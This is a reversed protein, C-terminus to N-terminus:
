ALAEAVEEVITPRTTDADILTFGEAPDIADVHARQWDLVVPGAESADAGERLRAEIRTQLVDEPAHCVIWPRARTKRLSPPANM